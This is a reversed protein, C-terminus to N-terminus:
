HLSLSQKEKFFNDITKVMEEVAPFWLIIQDIVVSSFPRLLGYLQGSNLSEIEIEAWDLGALLLSLIFAWKIAGLAAGLIEDAFGFPTLHIVSKLLRGLMTAVVVIVIFTLLFALIPLVNSESGFQDTLWATSQPLLHLAAIIAVVFGIIAIVELLIGKKYGRYAGLFLIVVLAWDWGTM